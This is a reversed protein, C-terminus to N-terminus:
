IGIMVLATITVIILIGTAKIFLEAIKMSLEEKRSPEAHLEISNHRCNNTLM